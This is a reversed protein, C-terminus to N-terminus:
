QSLFFPATKNFRNIVINLNVRIESQLTVLNKMLLSMKGEKLDYVEDKEVYYTKVKFRKWFTKLTESSVLLSEWNEHYKISLFNHFDNNIRTHEEGFPLFHTIPLNVALKVKETTFGDTKIINKEFLYKNYKIDAIHLLEHAIVEKRRINAKSENVNLELPFAINYLVKDKGKNTKYDHFYLFGSYRYKQDRLYYVTKLVLIENEAFRFGLDENNFRSLHLQYDGSIPEDKPIALFLDRLPNYDM